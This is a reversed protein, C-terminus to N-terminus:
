SGRVRMGDGANEIWFAVMIAEHDLVHKDHEQGLCATLRQHDKPM